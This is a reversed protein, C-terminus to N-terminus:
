HWQKYSFIFYLKLSSRNGGCVVLVWVQVSVEKLGMEVRRLQVSVRCAWKAEWGAPWQFHLSWYDTWLIRDREHLIWHAGSGLCLDSSLDKCFPGRIRVRVRISCNNDLNWKVFCKKHTGIPFSANCGRFWFFVIEFFNGYCSRKQVRIPPDCGCLAAMALTSSCNGVFKSM